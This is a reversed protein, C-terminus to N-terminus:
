RPEAQLMYALSLADRKELWEGMRVWLPLTLVSM